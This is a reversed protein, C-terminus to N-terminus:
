QAGVTPGLVWTVAAEGDADTVTPRSPVQGAGAVTAWNVRVGAVGAGLENTARVRLAVPLTDDIIATQSNGGILALQTAAGNATATFSVPTSSGPSSDALISLSARATQTRGEVGLIWTASATGTSDTYTIFGVSGGGTTAEWHIQAGIVARGSGNAVTVALPQALPQGAVGSQGDGSLIALGSPHLGTSEGCGYLMATSLLMGAISLALRHTM